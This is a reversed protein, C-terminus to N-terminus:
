EGSLAEKLEEAHIGAVDPHCELYAALMQDMVKQRKQELLAKDMDLIAGCGHCRDAGKMLTEGYRYCEQAPEEMGTEEDTQVGNLENFAEEIDRGLPPRVEGGHREGPGVRVVRM